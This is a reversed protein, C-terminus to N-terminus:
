APSRDATARRAPPAGFPTIQGQGDVLYLRDDHPFAERADAGLAVAALAAGALRYVDRIVGMQVLSGIESTDDGDGARLTVHLEKGEGRAAVAIAINEVEDSTVAAVARARDISLRRLIRQSSGSGIVVPLHQDKARPVNKADGNQEVAVVPIGLERLLVCLRLGVQGLGVVIVHDRRPVASRGLIGTLRPDLLRNVLGATLVAAFGLTLLMATASFLKFWDEGRDAAESPGVTVTVKAVTYVADVLSLGGALMTVVTEAVLVALMGALGAVLIQASSDFPRALSQLRGLLRRARGPTSWTPAAREPGADGPRVAVVGWPRPIITLLEPDLAPGAFAPVVIDALSLVRVEHVADHLHEAVDRDFVTVLTPIGPSIHAAVLALRLSVHDFRSAVVLRAVDGRLAERIERDNPEHLRRVDAGAAQLARETADALRGEGILLTCDGSPTQGDAV